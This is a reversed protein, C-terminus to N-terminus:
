ADSLTDPPHCATASRAPFQHAVLPWTVIVDGDPWRHLQWVGENFVIPFEFFKIADGSRGSDYV